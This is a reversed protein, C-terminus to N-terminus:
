QNNGNRARQRANNGRGDAPGPLTLPVPAAGPANPTVSLVVPAVPTSVGTSAGVSKEEPSKEEPPEPFKLRTPRGVSDTFLVASAEISSVKLGNWTDGAKVFLSSGSSVNELLASRVGNLVTIGTLTWSNNAVEPPLVVQEATPAVAKKASMVKPAFADRGPGTYRPFRATLDEPLIGDASKAATKTTRKAVSKPTAPPETYLYIAYGGALLVPVWLVLRSTTSKAM